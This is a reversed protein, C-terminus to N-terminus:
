DSLVVPKTVMKDGQVHKRASDKAQRVIVRAVVKCKKNMRENM